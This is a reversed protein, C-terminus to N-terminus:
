WQLSFVNIKLFRTTGFGSSLCTNTLLMCSSIPCKLSPLFNTSTLFLIKQCSLVFDVLITTFCHWCHRSALLELFMMNPISSIFFNRDIVKEVHHCQISHTKQKFSFISIPISQNGYVVVWLPAFCFEDYVMIISINSSKQFFFYTFKTCRSEYKNVISTLPHSFEIQHTFFIPNSM